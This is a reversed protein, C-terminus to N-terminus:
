MNLLNISKKKSRPVINNYELQISKKEKVRRVTQETQNTTNGMNLM